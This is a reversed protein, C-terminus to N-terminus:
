SFRSLDCRELVEAIGLLSIHYLVERNSEDTESESVVHFLPQLGEFNSVKKGM